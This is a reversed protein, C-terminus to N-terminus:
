FQENSLTDYTVALAAGPLTAGCTESIALRCLGAGESAGARAEHQGYRLLGVRDDDHIAVEGPRATVIWLWPCVRSFDEGSDTDIIDPVAALEDRPETVVPEV